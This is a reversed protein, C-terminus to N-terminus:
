VVDIDIPCPAVEHRVLIGRAAAVHEAGEHHAQRRLERISRENDLVMADKLGVVPALRDPFLGLRRADVPSGEEAVNIVLDLPNPSAQAQRQGVQDPAAAGVDLTSRHGLAAALRQVGEHPLLKTGQQVIASEQGPTPREGEGAGMQVVLVRAELALLSRDGTLGHGRQLTTIVDHRRCGHRLPQLDSEVRVHDFGAGVLSPLKIM